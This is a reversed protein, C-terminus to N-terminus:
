WAVHSEFRSMGGSAGPVGGVTGGSLGIRYEDQQVADGLYRTVSLTLYAPPMPAGRLNTTAETSLQFGAM